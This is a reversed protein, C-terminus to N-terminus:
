RAAERAAAERRSFTGTIRASVTEDDLRDTTPPILVFGQAALAATTRTVDPLTGARLELDLRGDSISLAEVRPPDQEPLGALVADLVELAPVPLPLENQGRGEAGLLRAHESRLRAAVAAPVAGQPFAQRYAAVQEDALRDIAREYRWALVALGAQLALVFAVIAAVLWPAQTRVARLPGGHALTERRLEIWPALRGQALLAAGRAAWTALPESAEATTLDGAAGRVAAVIEPSGNVVHVARPPAERVLALAIERAAAAPEAVAHRWASPRGEAFRAVDLAEGDQWVLLTDTLQGARAPAAESWGQWALWAAPVVSRVQVGRAELAEILPALRGLPAAVGLVREGHDVFDAVCEEASLPVLSELRFTWARRSRPESPQPTFAGCVVSEAALALVVSRPPEVAAVISEALRAAVEATSPVSADPPPADGATAEAADITLATLRTAVGGDTTAALLQWGDRTELLLLGQPM